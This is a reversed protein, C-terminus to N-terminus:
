KCKIEMLEVLYIVDEISALDRLGLVKKIRQDQTDRTHIGEKDIKIIAIEHVTGNIDSRRDFCDDIVGEEFNEISTIHIEPNQERLEWFRTEIESKLNDLRERFKKM